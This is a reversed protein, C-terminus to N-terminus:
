QVGYYFDDGPMAGGISQPNAHLLLEYLPEIQARMESGAVFVIHCNPIARRAVAAKPLVGFSEVLQSAAEIDGNVFSVSAAYDALFAEVKEPHAEAFARRVIVCGMSLVMGDNGAKKAAEDFLATVDLAARLSDNQMLASTVHPEPLIGIDAKGSALMTALESHEAVYEVSVSGSLGNQELIYDIVYEPVSAQGTAYVTRGALDGVSGITEDSTVVHLVGLTNLALLQVGGNTKQFLTAALNTPCAAIDASGSAVAAVIEDAAGCLTFAYDEPKDRMVGVMGIGTPGKLAYVRVPEDALAPFALLALAAALLVCLIKRM